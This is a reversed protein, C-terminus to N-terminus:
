RPQFLVKQTHLQKISDNFKLPFAFSSLYKQSKSSILEAQKQKESHKYGPVTPWPIPKRFFSICYCFTWIEIVKVTSLRLVNRNFKSKPLNMRLLLLLVWDIHDHMPCSQFYWFLVINPTKLRFVVAVEFSQEIGSRCIQAVKQAFYVTWIKKTEIQFVCRSIRNGWRTKLTWLQWFM